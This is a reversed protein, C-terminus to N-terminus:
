QKAKEDYMVHHYTINGETRSPPLQGGFHVITITIPKEKLNLRKEVNKIRRTINSM